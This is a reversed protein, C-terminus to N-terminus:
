SYRSVHLAPSESFSSSARNDNSSSWAAATSHHLFAVGITGSASLLIQIPINAAPSEFENQGLISSPATFNRYYQKKPFSCVHSM